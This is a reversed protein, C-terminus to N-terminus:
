KKKGYNANIYCEGDNLLWTLNRNNYKVEYYKEYIKLYAELEKPLNFKGNNKIIFDWINPTLINVEIKSLDINM